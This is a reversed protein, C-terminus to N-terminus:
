CTIAAVCYDVHGVGAEFRVAAVDIRLRAVSADRAYRTRWLRRAARRLRDRKVRTVSGHATTWANPGRCRVEVAVM